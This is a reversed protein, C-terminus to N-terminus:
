TKGKREEAAWKLYEVDMAMIVYVFLQLAENDLGYDEGYAKIVTWPIPGITM